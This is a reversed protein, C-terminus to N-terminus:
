GRPTPLPRPAAACVSSPWFIASTTSSPRAASSSGNPLRGPKVHGSRATAAGRGRTADAREQVTPALGASRRALAAPGGGRRGAPGCRATRVRGVGGPGRRHRGRSSESAHGPGAGPALPRTGDADPRPRLWGVGRAPLSPRRGHPRGALCVRGRALAAAASLYVSNHRAACRALQRGGRRCRRPPRRRPARRRAAGAAAGNRHQGTRNALARELRDVALTTEGRDLHVAALPRAADNPDCMRAPSCSSPRTSVDRGSGCTPWGSSARRGAVAFTRGLGWLRVAESLAADAEPWRGAATLMGGYHTHCFASVAPLGRRM